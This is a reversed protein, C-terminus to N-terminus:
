PPPRQSREQKLAAHLQDLASVCDLVMAQVLSASLGASHSPTEPLVGLQEGVALRLRAQVAAFMVDWDAPAIDDHRHPPGPPSATTLASDGHPGTTAMVADSGILSNLRLAMEPTDGHGSRRGANHAGPTQQPASRSVRSTM